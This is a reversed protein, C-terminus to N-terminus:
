IGLLQKKKADFEEQTIIGMDLLEKFKKLEEAASASQQIITTGGSKNQSLELIKEEVFSKIKQAEADQSGNKFCLANENKLAEETNRSDRSGPTTFEIYGRGWGSPKISVSVINAMALSKATNNMFFGSKEIEVKDDYVRIIGKYGEFVIKPEAMQKVGKGLINSKDFEEPIDEVDVSIDSKSIIVNLRKNKSIEITKESKINSPVKIFLSAVKISFEFHHTGEEIELKLEENGIEYKQKGDITVILIFDLAKGLTLVTNSKTICLTKM